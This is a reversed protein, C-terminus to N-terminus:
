DGIQGRMVTELGRVTEAYKKHITGTASDYNLGESDKYHIRISRNDYQIDVTARWDRSKKYSAEIHGNGNKLLQWQKALLSRRIASNVQAPSKGAPILIPEPTYIPAQNRSVGTGHQCATTVSMALFVLSFLASKIILNM